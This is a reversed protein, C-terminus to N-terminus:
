LDFMQKFDMIKLGISKKKKSSLVDGIILNLIFLHNRVGKSKRAGIQSDTMHKNVEEYTRKHILKMLITRLLSCM